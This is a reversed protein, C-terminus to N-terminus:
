FRQWGEKTKLQSEFHPIREGAVIQRLTFFEEKRREGPVIKEVSTGLIEAASFGLLIEAGRNWATVIGELDTALIADEAADVIAAFTSLIADPTKTKQLNQALNPIAQESRPGAPKTM